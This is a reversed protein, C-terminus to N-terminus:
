DVFKFKRLLIMENCYSVNCMEDLRFCIGDGIFVYICLYYWFKLLFVLMMFVRVIFGYLVFGVVIYLILMFM